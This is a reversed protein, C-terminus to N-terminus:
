AKMKKWRFISYFSFLLLYFLIDSPKSRTEGEGAQADETCGGGIAKKEGLIVVSKTSSKEGDGNIARITIKGGFVGHSTLLGNGDISGLDNGKTIEWSVDEEGMYTSFQFSRRSKLKVRKPWIQFKGNLQKLAKQANLTGDSIFKNKLSIKRSVSNLLGNRLQLFNLNKDNSLMLGLTGSVFPTSMSTGSVRKYNNELYTSLIEEGPAAMHVSLNGFNSFSSLKGKTSISGISLINPEDYSAPYSPRNDNNLSQNGAAAVILLGKNKAYQIAELLPKSFFEVGWSANLISAGMDSAYVIASVGHSLTGNGEKDLVKLPMIGVNWLVGSIGIGNNAEAAIIGSVHTGHGDDDIPDNNSKLFDWGNIDDVYGNGDDDIGNGEIEANNEWIQNSLDQHEMEIGSDVVAIVVKESGEILKWAKDVKSAKIGKQKKFLKDDPNKFAKINYDPEIYSFLKQYKELISVAKLEKDESKLIVMRLPKIEGTIELSQGISITVDNLTTNKRLKAIFQGSYATSCIFLYILISILFFNKKCSM